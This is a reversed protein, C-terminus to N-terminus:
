KIPKYSTPIAANDPFATIIKGTAPQYVVRIRVGNRVEYSVWNAPKGKATYIGGTGTQAYWQTNPATAIDGIEHVIKDASWDKPFTTKGPNGPYMHGGSTLSDGYLIHQKAEPSLIDVYKQNEPSIKAITGKEAKAAEKGAEKGVERSESKIANAEANKIVHGTSTVLEEASNLALLEKGALRLK